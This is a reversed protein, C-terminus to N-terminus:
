GLRVQLKSPMSVQSQHLRLRQHLHLHLSQSQRQHQRRQHLPCHTAACRSSSAAVLRSASSARPMALPAPAVPAASPAGASAAPPAPAAPWLTVGSAQLATAAKACRGAPATLHDVARAPPTATCGTARTPAATQAAGASSAALAGPPAPAAPRPYWLSRAPACAPSPSQRLPQHLSQPQLLPVMRLM